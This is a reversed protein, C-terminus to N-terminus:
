EAGNKRRNEHLKFDKIVDKESERHWYGFGHAMDIFDEDSLFEDPYGNSRCIQKRASETSIKGREWDWFMQCDRDIADQEASFRFNKNGIRM